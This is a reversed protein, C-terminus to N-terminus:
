LLVKCSYPPVLHENAKEPESEEEPMEMIHKKHWLMKGVGASGKIFVEVKWRKKVVVVEEAKKKNLPGEDDLKKM